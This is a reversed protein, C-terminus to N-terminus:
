AARENRQVEKSEHTLPLFRFGLWLGALGVTVFFLMVLWEHTTPAYAFSLRADTFAKGLGELEPTIQGPIVINLRVALFTTVALVGASGVYLPSSPKRLLLYIPVACGILIHVIWFVWWYQGTLVQMMVDKEPNVGYWMPISFEAWELILDLTILGLVIRGMLKMVDARKPWIVAALAAMLAGGSLLAGVVFFVPYLPQHWYPKASLTAFLAGGGGPFAIAIPIGVMLLAKVMADNKKYIFWAILGLLIGFATYLWTMWTMMSSFNPSSFVRFAREMHGLDLLVALMAVGISVFSTWLAARTLPKLVKVDLVNVLAAFLFSGASLGVFYAYAAVWLGWVVYSGYGALMHGNTLRQYVGVLGLVFAVVWLGGFLYRAAKM